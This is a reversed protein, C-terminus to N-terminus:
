HMIFQINTSRSQFDFGEMQKVRTPTHRLTKVPFDQVFHRIDISEYVARRISAFPTKLVNINQAVCYFYIQYM